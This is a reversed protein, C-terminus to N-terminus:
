REARPTVNSVRHWRSPEDTWAFLRAQGCSHSDVGTECLKTEYDDSGFGVQMTRRGIAQGTYAFQQRRQITPLGERVLNRFPQGDSPFLSYLPDFQIDFGPDPAFYPFRLLISNDSRAHFNQLLSFDFNANAKGDCTGCDALWLTVTALEGLTQPRM